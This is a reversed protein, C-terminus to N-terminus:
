SIGRRDRGRSSAGRRDRGRSSAGRRDRGRSSAGRRDRREPIEAELWDEEADLPEPVPVEELAPRMDNRPASRRLLGGKRRATPKERTRPSQWRSSEHRHKAASAIVSKDIEGQAREPQPLDPAEDLDEPEAGTEEADLLPPALAAEDEQGPEAEPEPLDPEVTVIEPAQELDEPEAGTEETEPPELTLIAADEQAPESKPAPPDPEIALVDPEEDLDEADTATEGADREAPEPVAPQPEAEDPAPGPEPPPEPSDPAIPDLGALDMAVQVPAPGQAAPSAPETLAFGMQAQVPEPEASSAPMTPIASKQVGADTAVTKDGAIHEAEPEDAVEPTQGVLAAEDQDAQYPAHEPEPRVTKSSAAGPTTVQAESTLSLPEPSGEQRQPDAPPRGWLMPKAWAVEADPQSSKVGRGPPQSIPGDETPDSTTTAPGPM